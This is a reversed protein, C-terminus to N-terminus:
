KHRTHKITHTHTHTHTLTYNTHTLISRLSQDFESRTSQYSNSAIQSICTHTHKETNVTCIYMYIYTHMNIYIINHTHTHTHTHTYLPVGRFPRDQKIM